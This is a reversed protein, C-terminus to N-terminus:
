WYQITYHLVKTPLENVVSFHYNIEEFTDLYKSFEYSLYRLHIINFQCVISTHNSFTLKLKFFIYIEIIIFFLFDNAYTFLLNNFLITLILQEQRM